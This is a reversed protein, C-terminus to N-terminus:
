QGFLAMIEDIVGLLTGVDDDGAEILYGGHKTHWNFPILEGVADENILEARHCGGCARSAPGTVYEPVDGIARDKTEVTDSASLLGALSKTQDPVNNTDPEHCSACDAIGHTPYPFEIHHEYHLAQVPDTFDIDGIDFPQGAHIAHAYSDISRSQMELHSGGSKTIHCLRCVIINGGRDPTHYNTALADHCNECGDEVRVIPSYFGDDFDNTGLDFTRSPANLALTVGDADELTPVVAIEVRKVTGDEIMDTWASLDFSVEWSGGEASVTSARPHEAGVEYELNREDERTLEGDGDDDFDREHPGVIYDKTDWGYLGVMVTPTIDEVDIGELDESEVASFEVNIMDGDFDAGDITVSIADSYRLGDATYIMKDYGTHIESFTAAAGGEAHCTTCDTTDLDLSDHIPSPLITKLALGTTDWAPDEGEEAVAAAAGTVPHCSKCTAVTFNDDSLVVDLKGEHCTVCSSMSQPYPFEMAHSMHVDNMLSTTYAYQAEQEATLEVEGALYAAAFEPDDVLLQWEVHGGEGNDLHCAKCTYFDTAPDGGVQGYIYGHKLYPDTHCKECGDNNAASLYDVGDGTELLAAFPYKPQRIRAPLRGVVEDAGYLVILGDMEGLDSAYLEEDSSTLTSTCGGDDECVLEGTLSLREIAPEFEFATGTWAVFYIGLSDADNANFPAGNKTMQFTVIHTDPSSFEYAMDTVQIVGDQYLEDYSAQHKAGAEPHCITCTEPPIPEPADQAIAPGRPGAMLAIALVLAGCVGLAVIIKKSMKAGGQIKNEPLRDLFQPNHKRSYQARDKTRPVEKKV